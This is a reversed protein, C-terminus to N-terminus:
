PTALYERIAVALAPLTEKRWLIDSHSALIEAIQMEGTTYPSWDFISADDPSEELSAKILLIPSAVVPLQYHATLQSARVSHDLMRKFWDLPMESPIMNVSAMHDRIQLLLDDEHSGAAEKIGAEHAIATLIQQARIEPEENLDNNSITATDVLILKDVVSGQRELEAAMAHAITGGLSTGLLRYPGLPSIERLAAVYETVVEQMSTHATEGAELGKAQLAWVPQAAGLANALNGYVSASGGAPHICFLVPQSGSKRLPVLPTYPRTHGTVILKALQEPTPHEFLARMPLETQCVERVKSVLRMALLSHGGLAFFNDTIGVRDAGTLTSFLECLLAQTETQPAKFTESGIIEPDPLARADLKGNPTVPLRGMVVFNSPVMHDPLTNSLTNKLRAIFLHNLERIKRDTTDRWELMDVPDIPQAEIDTLAKVVYAVLRKEGSIDRVQVSAQGIGSIASLANEIEGLEIRYGRIKIQQDARRLYEINGDGGFRALDGTRYMRTGDPGFPNAIFREASLGPRNVYGQALAPGSIYLEGIVGDPVLSLNDDLVFMAYDQMPQGIPAPTTQSRFLALSINQTSAWVTAETPGYMNTVSGGFKLMQQALRYSLAEGGVLMRLAPHNQQSESVVLDWLSPTAQMVTIAHAEIAHRLSIPDKTQAPSLLVITAGNLLPLYLELAAIDFGITTIALLKDAESLPTALQAGKLFEALNRHTLGVGKPQGTSGSTYIVYALHDPQLPFTREQQTIPTQAQQQLQVAVAHQDLLLTLPCALGERLSESEFLPTTSLLCQAQSDTLMYQLRAAPYEPDLPLYAAGAQQVALLAILMQPSRNLLIAVLSGPGIGREILVRALQTSQGLLEAYSLVDQSQQQQFILATRTAHQTALQPLQDAFLPTISLNNEPTTLSKNCRTLLAQSETENLLPINALVIDHQESFLAVLYSIRELIWQAHQQDLRKEDYTLRLLLQEGPVAILSIPYHTGDIGQSGTQILKGTEKSVDSVDLNGSSYNEFIFLAEFLPVSNQLGPNALQQIRSLGIHGHAEQQAQANQQTRLWDVLTEAPALTLCLPLTEIFLGIAQDIHDLQIGRGSRVSGIVLNDSRSIKAMLLGFLGQLASAPTLGNDRATKEFNRTTQVNLSLRLDGMGQKPSAPSPLVLQGAEQVGALHEKWYTLAAEEPQQKLWALYDKWDFARAFQAPINQIEAEYFRALDKLMLPTSWGDLVMHHNSILLATNEGDLKALYARFLPGATLDFPIALDLKRLHTLREQPSGSLELIPCQYTSANLIVGTAELASPAVVVLRLIKHRTVLLQYARQMAALDFEGSFTFAMQVHYPDVSGNDRSLSEFALGQQLTTLPVVDELTPYKRVLLDLASQTLTQGMLEFDSPTHRNFLPDELCHRTLSILAQRYALTLAQVSSEDHAEKCYAISFRLCGQPDVMANIDFLHMRQRNDDDQCATLGGQDFMWQGRQESSTASQDSKNEENFQGLYNLVIQPQPRDDFLQKTDADYHRLVGYGIGKDPLARLDEKIQRLAHGPAEPASWDLQGLRL